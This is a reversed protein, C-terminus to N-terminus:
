KVMEVKYGDNRLLSIVGNEGWLHGAGVAFFVSSKEMKTAMRPIWKKNRVDLFEGMDDSISKSQTIYQYLAPIDQQKYAVIMKNYDDDGEPNKHGTVEELVSNIVSDAPISELVNLQEQPDELGLIEKDTEQATKMINEEYSVANKCSVESLGMVTQLMIPKMQQFMAIDLELSDKLYQSVLKYQEPTFYDKLQKGSKDILGGAIAMMVTPDDMDMELCIKESKELSTKMADTWIYDDKCIKHMTGFLYSPKSLHKGSIRWLLSKNDTTNTQAKSTFNFLFALAGAALTFLRKM